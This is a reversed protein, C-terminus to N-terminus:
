SNPHLDCVHSPDGMATVTTYAPLQLELEIGLMPVEMYKLHLGLISFLYIFIM